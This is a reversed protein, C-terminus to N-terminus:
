RKAFDSRNADWWQKCDHYEECRQSTLANFCAVLSRELANWWRVQPSDAEARKHALGWLRDYVRMFDDIVRVRRRPELARWHGLADAAAKAADRAEPEDSVDKILALLEGHAGPDHIDGFAAIAALVLELPAKGPRLLAKLDRSSGPDRLTGYGKAAALQVHTEKHKLGKRLAARAYAKERSDESLYGSRALVALAAALRGPDDAKEAEEPPRQADAFPVPPADQAAAGGLLLALAAALRPTM